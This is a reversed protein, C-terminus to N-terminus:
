PDPFGALEGLLNVARWRGSVDSLRETVEGLAGGWLGGGYRRDVSAAAHLPNGSKAFPSAVATAM